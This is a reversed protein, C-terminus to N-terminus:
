KKGELVQLEDEAQQRKDEPLYPIVGKIAKSMNTIATKGEVGTRNNAKGRLPYYHDTMIKRGTTASEHGHDKGVQTALAEDLLIDKYIYLLAIQRHTLNPNQQAFSQHNTNQQEFSDTTVLQSAQERTAESFKQRLMEVQRCVGQLMGVAFDQKIVPENPIAVGAGSVLIIKGARSSVNQLLADQQQIDFRPEQKISGTGLLYCLKNQYLLGNVRGVVSLLQDCDIDDEYDLWSDVSAILEAPGNALQKVFHFPFKDSYLSPPYAEAQRGDRSVWGGLGGPPLGKPQYTDTPSPNVLVERWGRQWLANWNTCDNAEFGFHAVLAADTAAADQKRQLLQESYSTM